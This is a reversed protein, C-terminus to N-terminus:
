INTMYLLFAINELSIVRYKQNKKIDRKEWQWIYIRLDRTVIDPKELLFDFVIDEDNWAHIEAIYNLFLYHQTQKTIDNEICTSTYVIIYIEFMGSSIESWKGSKIM